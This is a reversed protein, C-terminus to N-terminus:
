PRGGKAPASAPTNGGARLRARLSFRERGDQAEVVVPAALAADVFLPSREILALLESASRAQGTLDVRGEELRLDTLWATDPLVRTLENLIEVPQPAERRLRELAEAERAGAVRLEAARRLALAKAKEANALAVVEDRARM